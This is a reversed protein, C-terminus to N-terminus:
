SKTTKLAYNCVQFWLIQIFVKKNTVVSITWVCDMDNTYEDPYGPSQLWGQNELNGGCGKFNM